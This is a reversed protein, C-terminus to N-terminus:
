LLGLVMKTTDSCHWWTDSLWGAGFAGKSACAGALVALETVAMGSGEELRAMPLSLPETTGSFIQFPAARGDTGWRWARAFLLALARFAFRPRPSDRASAPSTRAGIHACPM